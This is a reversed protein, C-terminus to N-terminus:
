VAQGQLEVQSRRARNRAAQALANRHKRQAVPRKELYFNATNRCIGAEALLEDTPYDKTPLEWRDKIRMAAAESNASRREASVIHGPKGGVKAARRKTMFEKAAENIEGPSATPPIRRGTDLAVITAGRASAAAVCDLFDSQEWALCALSALIIVELNELRTTGRLLEARGTLSAPAHAQRKTPPLVDSYTPVNPWGPVQEALLEKQRHMPWGPAINSIYVRIIM